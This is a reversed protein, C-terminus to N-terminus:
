YRVPSFEVGVQLSPLDKITTTMLKSLRYSATLSFKDFGVRICASYSFMNINRFTTKSTRESIPSGIGSNITDRTILKNLLHSSGVIGIDIYNGLYDGKQGLRTRFFVGGYIGSTNLSQALHIVSDTALIGPKRSLDFFDRNIGTESIISIPKSIKLKYRLGLAVQAAFQPDAKLSMSFYPHVFHKRNPGYTPHVQVTDPFKEFVLEQATVNCQFQGLLLFFLIGKVIQDREM